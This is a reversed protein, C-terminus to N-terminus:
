KKIAATPDVGASLVFIIPESNKSEDFIDKLIVPRNEIFEKKM